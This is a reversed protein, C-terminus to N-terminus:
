VMRRTLTLENGGEPLARYHMHDVYQRIIYVGMGGLQRQELPLSMDPNPLLTPDFAPAQDRLHIVLTDGDRKLEVELPGGQDHYGHIIVNTAAEDVSATLEYIVDADAGEETARTEVFDRIAALSTRVANFQSAHSL